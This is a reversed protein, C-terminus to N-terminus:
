ISKDVKADEVKQTEIANSKFQKVRDNWSNNQTQSPIVFVGGNINTVNQQSRIMVHHVEKIAQIANFDSKADGRTVVIENLRGVTREANLGVKECEAHFNNLYTEQANKIIEAIKPNQRLGSPYKKKKDYGAQILAQSPNLGQEAILTYLKQSKIKDVTKAMTLEGCKGM